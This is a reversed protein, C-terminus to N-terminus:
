FSVTAGASITFSSEGDDILPIDQTVSLSASVDSLVQWKAMATWTADQAEFGDITSGYLDASVMCLMSSIPKITASAGANVTGFCVPTSSIGEFYETSYAGKGTVTMSKFPLYSVISGKVLFGPEADDYTLFAGTASASYYLTTTIPGAASLTGYFSNYGDDGDNMDMKGLAEVAFTNGGLFNPASVNALFVLNKSSFPYISDLDADAEAGVGSTKGNLFGTYGVYGGIRLKGASMAINAGDSTMAFVSSSVDSFSYRGVNVTGVPLAFTLKFLSVDVINKTTTEGDIITGSYKYYAEAAFSGGAFPVKAWGTLKASPSITAPDGTTFAGSADLSGGFDYAAAPLVIMLVAALILVYKKM